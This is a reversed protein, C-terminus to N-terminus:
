NPSQRLNLRRHPRTEIGRGPPEPLAAGVLDFLVFALHVILGGKAVWRYVM